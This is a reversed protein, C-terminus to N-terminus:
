RASPPEVVYLDSTESSVSYVMTLTDGSVAAEFIRPRDSPDFRWLEHAEGTDLAVQLLVREVGALGVLQPAEIWRVPWADELGRDGAVRQRHDVRDRRLRAVEVHDHDIARVQNLHKAVDVVIGTGIANGSISTGAGRMTLPVGTASAVAVAALLEDTHRPRVVVQPVVRYLSADSSYLARTLVSDDVDGVHNRRLEAVVDPVAVDIPVGIPVSV